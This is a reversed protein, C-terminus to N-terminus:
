ATYEANSTLATIMGDLESESIVVDDEDMTELVELVSVVSDAEEDPFVFLETFWVVNVWDVLTNVTITHNRYLQIADIVHSCKLSCARKCEVNYLDEGIAKQLETKSIQLARFKKLYEQM